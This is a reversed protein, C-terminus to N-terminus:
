PNYPGTAISPHNLDSGLAEELEESFLPINTDSPDAPAKVACVTTNAEVCDEYRGQPALEYDEANAPNGGSKLMWEPDTQAREAELAKMKANVTYVGLGLLLAM